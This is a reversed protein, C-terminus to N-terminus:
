YYKGQGAALKHNVIQITMAQESVLYKKALDSINMHKVLIDQKLMFEPMLLEAAFENAEEEQRYHPDLYRKTPDTIVKEHTYNKHGSLYHGLEHAVSFRQRNKPNKKNVGIIQKGSGATQLTAPISEPFDFQEVQIGLLEAIKVVNIPPEEIGYMQLISLAKKRAARSRIM